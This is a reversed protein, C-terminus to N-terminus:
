YQFVVFWGIKVATTEKVDVTQRHHGTSEEHHKIRRFYQMFTGM